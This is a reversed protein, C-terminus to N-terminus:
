QRRSHQRGENVHHLLYIFGTVAIAASAILVSIVAPAPTVTHSLNQWLRLPITVDGGELLYVALVVEDFSLFFGLALSGLLAPLVSPFYISLMNGWHSAGLSRGAELMDAPVLGRAAELIFYQLPLIVSLHGLFMFVWIPVHTISSAQRLSLAYPILPTLLITTMLVFIITDTAGSLPGAIFNSLYNYTSATLTGVISVGIGLIISYRLSSRWEPSYLVERYWGLQGMTALRGVVDTGWVSWIGAYVVPSLVLIGVVAFGLWLTRRISKPFYPFLPSAEFLNSFRDLM